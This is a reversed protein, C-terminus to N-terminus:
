RAALAFLLLAGTSIEFWRVDLGAVNCFTANLMQMFMHKYVYM